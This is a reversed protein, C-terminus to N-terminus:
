TFTQVIIFRTCSFIACVKWPSKRRYGRAAVALKEGALKRDLHPNRHHLELVYTEETDTTGVTRERERKKVM